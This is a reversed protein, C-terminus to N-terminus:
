LSRYCYYSSTAGPYTGTVKQCLLDRELSVKEYTGAGVVDGVNVFYAPTNIFNYQAFSQDNTMESKWCEFRTEPNPAGAIIKRCFNSESPRQRQTQLSGDSPEITVSRDPGPLAEYLTRNESSLQNQSKGTPPLNFNITDKGCATLLFTFSLLACWSKM